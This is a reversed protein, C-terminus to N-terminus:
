TGFPKGAPLWGGLVAILGLAYDFRKWCDVGDKVAEILLTQLEPRALVVPATLMQSMNYLCFQLRPSTTGILSWFAVDLPKEGAVLPVGCVRACAQAFDDQVLWGYKLSGVMLELSESSLCEADASYAELVGALADYLYQSSARFLDTKCDRELIPDVGPWALPDAYELARDFTRLRAAGRTTNAKATAIGSDDPHALSLRQLLVLALESREIAESVEKFASEVFYVRPRTRVDIKEADGRAVIAGSVWYVANTAAETAELLADLTDALLPRAEATTRSPLMGEIARLATRLSIGADVLRKFETKEAPTLM